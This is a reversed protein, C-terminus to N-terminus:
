NADPPPGELSHIQAETQEVTLAQQKEQLGLLYEERETLGKVMFILDLKRQKPDYKQEMLQANFPADFEVPDDGTMDLSVRKIRYTRVSHELDLVSTM